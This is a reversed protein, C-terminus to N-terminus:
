TGSGGGDSTKTTDIKEEVVFNQEKRRAFIVWGSCGDADKISLCLDGEELFLVPPPCVFQRIKFAVDTPLSIDHRCLWSSSADHYQALLIEAEKNTKTLFLPPFTGDLGSDLCFHLRQKKTIVHLFAEGPNAKNWCDGPFGFSAIRCIDGELFGNKSFATAIYNKEGKNGEKEKNDSLIFSGSTTRCRKFESDCCAPLENYRFFAEYNGELAEIMPLIDTAAADEDKVLYPKEYPIGKLKMMETRDRRLGLVFNLLEINRHRENLRQELEDNESKQRSSKREQAELDKTLASLIQEREALDIEQKDLELDWDILNKHRLYQRFLHIERRRHKKERRELDEERRNLMEQKADLDEGVDTLYEKCAV